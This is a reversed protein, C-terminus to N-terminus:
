REVFLVRVAPATGFADDSMAREQFVSIGGNAMPVKPVNTRPTRGRRDQAQRLTRRTECLVGGILHTKKAISVYFPVFFGWGNLPCGAQHGVM